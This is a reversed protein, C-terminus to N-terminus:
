PSGDLLTDRYHNHPHDHDLLRTLMVELQRRRLEYNEQIAYYRNSLISNDPNMANVKAAVFIDLMAIFEAVEQDNNM